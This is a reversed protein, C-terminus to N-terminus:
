NRRSSCESIGRELKEKKKKDAFNYCMLHLFEEFSIKGDDNDDLLNMIDDVLEKNEEGIIEQIEEADLYGSNDTDLMQFAMRVKEINESYTKHDIMAALFETQEIEGNGDIDIADILKEIDMDDSIDMEKLGKLLEDRELIGDGNKDLQQFHRKLDQIEKDDNSTMAM